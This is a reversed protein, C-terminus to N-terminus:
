EKGTMRYPVAKRIRKNGANINMPVGKNVTASDQLVPRRKSGVASYASYHAQVMVASGERLL